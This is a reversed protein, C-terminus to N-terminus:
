KFTYIYISIQFLLVIKSFSNYMICVSFMIIAFFSTSALGVIRLCVPENSMSIADRTLSEAM